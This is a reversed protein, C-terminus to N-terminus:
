AKCTARPLRPGPTPEDVLQIPRVEVTIGSRLGPFKKAIALAEDLDKCEITEFGGLMEKTEAFPGDTIIFKGDNQRVTTAASAPHLGTARLSHGSKMLEEHWSTCDAYVRDQEAQPLSRFKSEDLYVLLVYQMVNPTPLNRRTISRAAPFDVGIASKKQSIKRPTM